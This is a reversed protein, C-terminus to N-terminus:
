LSLLDEANSYGSSNLCSQLQALARHLAVYIANPARDLKHGIEAPSLHVFYRLEIVQRRLDSLQELCPKLRQLLLEDAIQPEPDLQGPIQTENEEIAIDHAVVNRTIIRIVERALVFRCMKCFSSDEHTGQETFKAKMRQIRHFTAIAADRGVDEDQGRFRAAKEGWEMLKVWLEVVADQNEELVLQVWSQPCPEAM